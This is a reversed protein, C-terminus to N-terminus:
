NYMSRKKRLTNAFSQFVMNYMGSKTKIVIDNNCGDENTSIILYYSSDKIKKKLGFAFIGFALLRTLTVDNRVQEETKLQVDTINRLDLSHFTKLFGKFLLKNGSLELKLNDMNGSLKIYGGKYEGSVSNTDKNTNVQILDGIGM